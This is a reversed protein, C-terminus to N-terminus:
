PNVMLAKKIDNNVAEVVQMPQSAQTIPRGIVLYSSGNVIADTVSMVRAQDDQAATTPRIGPTVYIFDSPMAAQLFAIDPAACVVGRLGADRAQIALRQINDKISGHLGIAHISQESHSTLLTVGILLPSSSQKQLATYAASLMAQGGLIHVNLMWVGLEAAAVCANAVTNPIDHFKLDLFIDFNLKQLAEIVAPGSRTFLEKGVKLRCTQPDLQRALTLAQGVDPFDLAVILRNTDM